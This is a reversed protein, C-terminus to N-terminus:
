IGSARRRELLGLAAGLAAGGVTGAVVISGVGRVAPLAERLHNGALFGIGFGFTGAAGLLAISRWDGSAAGLSAGVTAGVLGGLLLSSYDFAAAMVVAASVGVM